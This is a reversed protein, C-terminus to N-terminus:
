CNGKMHLETRFLATTPRHWSNRPAVSSGNWNHIGKSNSQAATDEVGNWRSDDSQGATSEVSYRGHQCNPTAEGPRLHTGNQRANSLVKKLVSLSSEKPIVAAPKDEDAQLRPSFGQKRTENYIHEQTKTAEKTRQIEKPIWLNLFAVKGLKGRLLM